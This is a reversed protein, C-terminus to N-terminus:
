EKIPLIGAGTNHPHNGLPEIKDTNNSFVIGCLNGQTNICAVWCLGRTGITELTGNGSQRGGSAPILYINKGNQTLWRGADWAGLQYTSNNTFISISPVPMVKFGVPSPDYISKVTNMVNFDTQSTNSAWLSYIDNDALSSYLKNGAYFIGPNQILISQEKGAGGVNEISFGNCNNIGPMPDKRGFQYSNATIKKVHVPNQTITVVEEKNSEKQKIHIKIMRKKTREEGNPKRSEWWRLYALGLAHNAINISQSGGQINTTSLSKEETTFWLHWSWMIKGENDKVAVVANGNNIQEKTVHFVLCNNSISFNDTLLPFDQWVLNASTASSIYPQTIKNGKYDKYCNRTQSYAETNPTGNKIANGYVLPIAYYGPSSIIYSNATNAASSNKFDYGQQKTALNYPNNSSGKEPANKLMNNFAAMCDVVDWKITANITEGDTQLTGNGETKDLTVFDATKANVKEWTHGEDNTLEYSTVEWPQIEHKTSGVPQKYSTIHIPVSATNILENSATNYTLETSGTATLHYQPVAGKRYFTYTKTTGPKWNANVTAKITKNGSLGIEIGIKGDQPIMFFTYYNNKQYSDSGVEIIGDKDVIGYNKNIPNIEFFTKDESLQWTGFENEKDSFTYTGKGKVSTLKVSTVESTNNEGLVDKAIKFRIATLPHLFTLKVEPKKHDEGLKVYSSTATLLDLQQMVVDNVEYEFCRHGNEDKINPAGGGYNVDPAIAYFKAYPKSWKWQLHAAIPIGTASFKENEFDTSMNTIDQAKGFYGTAKFGKSLQGNNNVYEHMGRTTTRWLIPEDRKPMGPTTEEVLQLQSGDSLHATFNNVPLDAACLGQQHLSAKISKPNTQADADVRAADTFSFAFSSGQESSEGTPLNDVCSYLNFSLTALALLSVCVNFVSKISKM